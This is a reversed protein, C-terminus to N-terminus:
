SFRDSITGDSLVRIREELKPIFEDAVFDDSLVNGSLSININTGAGGTRNMRNLNELGISETAKRSFVFEGREAEILTGGQSHPRGGILGGAALKPPKQSLVMGAQAAGMAAIMFTWPSGPPISTPFAAVAKLMADGTNMAISAIKSAQEIRFMQMQRKAYKKKVDEEMKEKRKDSAAKYSHSQKLADLEANMEDTIAQQRQAMFSNFLDQAMQMAEGRVAAKQEENDREFEAYEEELEKMKELKEKKLEVESADLSNIEDQM